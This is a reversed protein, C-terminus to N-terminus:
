VFYMSHSIKLKELTVPGMMPGLNYLIHERRITFSEGKPNIVKVRYSFNYVHEIDDEDHYICFNMGLGYHKHLLVDGFILSKM